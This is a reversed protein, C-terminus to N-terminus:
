SQPKRDSLSKAYWIHNTIRQVFKKLRQPDQFHLVLGDIVERNRSSTSTAAPRSQPNITDKRIPETDLPSSASAIQSSLLQQKSPFVRLVLIWSSTSPPSDGSPIQTPDLHKSTFAKPAPRAEAGCLSQTSFEHKVAKDVAGVVLIREETFILCLSDQDEPGVYGSAELFHDTAYRGGLLTRLGLAVGAQFERYPKM